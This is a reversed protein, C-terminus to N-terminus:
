QLLSSTVIVDKALLVSYKIRFLDYHRQNNFILDWVFLDPPNQSHDAKIGWQKYLWSHFNKVDISQEKSEKLLEFYVVHSVTITYM